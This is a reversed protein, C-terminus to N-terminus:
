LGPWATSNPVTLVDADRLMNWAAREQLEMHLAPVLGLIITHLPDSVTQAWRLGFWRQQAGDGALLLRCVEAGAPDVVIATGASLDNVTADLAAIESGASIMKLRIRALGTIGTLHLTGMEQNAAGLVRPGGSRLAGKQTVSLVQRGTPDSVTYTKPGVTFGAPLHTWGVTHGRSDLVPWPPVGPAQIVFTLQHSWLGQPPATVPDSSTRGDDAVTDTWNTGDFYRHQHRGTPDPHWGASDTPHTM